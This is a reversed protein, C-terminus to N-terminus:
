GGTARKLAQIHDPSFYGPVGPPAQRDSGVSAPMPLVGRTGGGGADRERIEAAEAEIAGYEIGHEELKERARRIVARVRNEARDVHRIGEDVALTLDSRWETIQAHEAAITGVQNTLDELHAHM